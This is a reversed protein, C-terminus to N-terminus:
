GETLKISLLNPVYQSISLWIAHDCFNWKRHSILSSACPHLVSEHSLTLFDLRLIKGLMAPTRLISKTPDYGKETFWIPEPERLYESLPDAKNKIGTRPQLLDKKNWANTGSQWHGDPPYSHERLSNFISSIGKGRWCTFLFRLDGCPAWLEGCLLM